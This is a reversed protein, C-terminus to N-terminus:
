GPQHNRSGDYSCPDSPLGHYALPNHERAADDYSSCRLGRSLRTGLYLCCLPLRAPAGMPMCLEQRRKLYASVCGSAQGARASAPVPRALLMRTVLLLESISLATRCKPHAHVSRLIHPAKGHGRAADLM